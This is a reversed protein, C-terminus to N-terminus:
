ATLSQNHFDIYLALHDKLGQTTKTTCWTKRFLRNLNARFMAAAHNFSFLPDFSTAKLEGQGVVCGRLGKTTIHTANCFHRHLCSPYHPNQDSKFLADNAVIGKLSRLLGSMAWYRRDPRKGYKDVSKKALLGKAPMSAVYAGLIKREPSVAIAVSLPKLKSHEFTEMEDFYVERFVAGSSELDKRFLRQHRRAEAALFRIKRAVTKQHIGLLLGARRQSVGSCYLRRLPENVRRKKQGFCPHFTAESFSYRCFRCEFRRLYRSDSQRHFRGKSRWRESILRWNSCRGPIEARNLMTGFCM